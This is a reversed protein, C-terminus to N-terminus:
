RSSLSTALSPSIVWVLIKTLCFARCSPRLLSLPKGLFSYSNCMVVAVACLLHRCRACCRRRRMSSSPVHAVVAITTLTTWLLCSLPLPANVIIHRVRHHRRCTPPPLITCSSRLPVIFCNNFNFAGAHRLHLFRCRSFSVRLSPMPSLPPIWCSRLPADYGM